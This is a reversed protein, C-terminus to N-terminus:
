GEGRLALIRSISVPRKAPNGTVLSYPPAFFSNCVSGSAVVADERIDSGGLVVNQAVVWVNRGIKIETGTREQNIANGVVEVNHIFLDDQMLSYATMTREGISIGGRCRIALGGLNCQRGIRVSADSSLTVISLGRFTNKHVTCNRDIFVSGPGVITVKAFAKFPFRIIVSRKFLRYFWIYWTGRLLAGFLSFIQFPERRMARLARAIGARSRRIRNQPSQTM